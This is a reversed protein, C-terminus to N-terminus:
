FTTTLTTLWAPSLDVLWAELLKDLGTFILTAIMLMTMGLLVKGTQGALLLRGRWQSTVTQSLQGLLVIPLAAGLGFLAMLFMAHSLQDGQSALVIAVGLTPGVCPSWVLGLVCGIVFQGKLGTLAYKSLLTHGINGIGAGALAWRAQLSSSVLVLGLLALVGAGIFRFVSADIGLHSGLWAIWTGILAYSLALGAALAWPARRHSQMASSLLIPVLPLVCPSLTSLVGALVALGVTAISVVM